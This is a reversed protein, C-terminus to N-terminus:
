LTGGGFVTYAPTNFIPTFALTHYPYFVLKDPNTTPDPYAVGDEDIPLMTTTKDSEASTTGPSRIDHRKGSVMEQDDRNPVSDIWGGSKFKLKYTVTRYQYGNEELIATLAGGSIKAAYRAITNGDFPFADNNVCQMAGIEPAVTFSTPVNKSYTASWTGSERKIHIVGNATTKVAQNGSIPGYDNSAGPYESAYDWAYEETANDYDWAITAPRLLPNPQYNVLSSYDCQVQWHMRNSNEICQPRKQKLLRRPDDPHASAYTPVGAAMEAQVATAPADFIVLYFSTAQLETGLDVSYDYITQRTVKVLAM